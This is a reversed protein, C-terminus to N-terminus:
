WVDKGKGSVSMWLTLKATFLLVRNAFLLGMKGGDIGIRSFALRYRSNSLDAVSIGRVKESSALGSGECVPSVKKNFIVRKSRNPSGTTM